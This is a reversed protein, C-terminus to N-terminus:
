IKIGKERLTEAVAKIRGHYRYAGRDFILQKIKKKQLQKALDQAVQQAKVTKTGQHQNAKGADTASALTQGQDDDIVQLYIHKNSRFVTLRPRLATGHLKGRVRRKRKAALTLNHKINAM